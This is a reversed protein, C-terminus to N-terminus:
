AIASIEPMLFLVAFQGVDEKASIAHLMGKMRLHMSLGAYSEAFDYDGGLKPLGRAQKGGFPVMESLNHRIKSFQERLYDM